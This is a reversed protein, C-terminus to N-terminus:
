FFNYNKLYKIFKDVDSEEKDKLMERIEEEGYVKANNDRLMKFARSNNRDELFNSFSAIVFGKNMGANFNETKIDNYYQEDLLIRTLENDSIQSLINICENIIDNDSIDWDPLAFKYCVKTGWNRIGLFKLFEKGEEQLIKGNIEINEGNVLRIVIFVSYLKNENGLNKQIKPIPLSKIM